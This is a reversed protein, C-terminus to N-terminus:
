NAPKSAQKSTSSKNYNEMDNKEWNERERERERDDDKKKKKKQFQLKKRQRDIERKKSTQENTQEIENIYSSSFFLFHILIIGNWFSISFYCCCSSFFLFIRSDDDNPNKM